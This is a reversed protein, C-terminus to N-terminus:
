MRRNKTVYKTAYMSVQLNVKKYKLINIMKRFYIISTNENNHHFLKM